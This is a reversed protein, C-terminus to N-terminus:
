ANENFRMASMDEATFGLAILNLLHVNGCNECYLLAMPFVSAGISLENAQLSSPVPAYADEVRWSNADCISCRFARGKTRSQLRAIISNTIEENRAM